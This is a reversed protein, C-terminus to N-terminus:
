MLWIYHARLHHLPIKCRRCWLSLFSPVCKHCPLDHATHGCPLPVAPTPRMCLGCDQYCLKSCPHGCPKMERPCPKPCRVTLHGPDDPHCLRYCQPSSSRVAKVVRCQRTLQAPALALQQKEQPLRCQLIKHLASLSSHVIDAASTYQGLKSSEM